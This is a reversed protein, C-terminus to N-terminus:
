QRIYWGYTHIVEHRKLIPNEIERIEDGVGPLTGRARSSDDLAGSDNHGFQLLVLDGPKM